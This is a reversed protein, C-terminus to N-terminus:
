DRTVETGSTLYQAAHESAYHDEMRDHATEPDLDQVTHPCSICHVTIVDFLPHTDM